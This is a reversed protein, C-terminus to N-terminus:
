RQNEWVLFFRFHYWRRSIINTASMLNIDLFILNRYVDYIKKYKTLSFIRRSARERCFQAGARM